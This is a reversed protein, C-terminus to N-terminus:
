SLTIQNLQNTANPDSINIVLILTGSSGVTGNTGLSWAGALPGVTGTKVGFHNAAGNGPVSITGPTGTNAQAKGLDYVKSPSTGTLDDKDILIAQIGTGSGWENLTSFVNSGDDLDFTGSSFGTSFGTFARFYYNDTSTFGSYDGTNGTVLRGNQVQLNGDTLTATPTWATSYNSEIRKDEDLFQEIKATSQAAVYSNVRSTSLTFTSSDVSSKGPKFATLTATPRSQASNINALLDLDKTFSLTSNYNPTDAAVTGGLPSGSWVSSNWRVNDLQYVPSFMNFAQGPVTFTATKLYSIGSLYNLTISTSSIAGVTITQDPYYAISGVWFINRVNTSGAGNDALIQYQVSGTLNPGMAAQYRANAKVWFTNYQALSTVNLRGTQGSGSPSLPRETIFAAENRFIVSATIGGQLTNAVLDSNKGARFVTAPNSTEFNHTSDNVFPVGNGATYGNNYWHASTLGYALLGTYETAGTLLLTTGTLLGAKAPALDLFAKSIEDMSQALSTASTFTDFFGDGYASANTPQGINISQGSAQIPIATSGSVILSGTIQLDNTTSQISGTQKFIGGGSSGSSQSLGTALSASVNTIGPLTFIGTVGLTGELTTAGEVALSGNLTLSSLEAVSGSVIIKEWKNTYIYSIDAADVFVNGAKSYKTPIDTTAALGNISVGMFADPTYGAATAADFSGTLGWRDTTSDYAFLTGKGDASQEIAIGGDTATASGSALLIYKDKITLNEANTFSATGAVTLDGSLTLDIGTAGAALTSATAASTANAVVGDVNAGAVYSATTATTATTAISATLAFSASVATSQIHAANGMLVHATCQYYIISPTNETVSIQIIGSSPNSVGTTYETVKNPDLYFKLPHAAPYAIKYSKGPYFDLYPSEVGEFYYANGSGQNYYRNNTTKAASIVTISSTADIQGDFNSANILSINAGKTEITSSVILSGTVQLDNTTAQISGTQAFIGGGGGGGASLSQSLFLGTYQHVSVKYPLAHGGPNTVSLIGTQYNFFWNSNDTSPVSTGDNQFLSVDYGLGYKTSIFNRQLLDANITGRNINTGPTFGSGSVFYFVSTTFGTLPSLSFQTYEKAFGDTVATAPTSSVISSWVETTNTNITNAGFEEYFEKATTTFEKNILTKFSLSIPNAPTTTFSM